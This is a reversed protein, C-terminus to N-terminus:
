AGNAAPLLWDGGVLNPSPVGLRRSRPPVAAAMALAPGPLVRGIGRAQDPGVTGRADVLDRCPSQPDELSWRTHADGGGVASPANHPVGAGGRGAKLFVRPM